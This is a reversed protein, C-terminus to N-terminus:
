LTSLPLSGLAVGSFYTASTVSRCFRPAGTPPIPTCPWTVCGTPSTMQSASSLSATVPRGTQIVSSSTDAASSFTRASSRWITSRSAYACGATSPTMSQPNMCPCMHREWPWSTLASPWYVSAPFLNAPSRWSHVGCEVPFTSLLPLKLNLTNWPVYWTISLVAEPFTFCWSKSTLLPSVASTSSM